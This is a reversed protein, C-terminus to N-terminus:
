FEWGLVISMFLAYLVSSNRGLQSNGAHPLNTRSATYYFYLEKGTTYILKEKKVIGSSTGNKVM